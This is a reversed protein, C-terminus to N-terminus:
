KSVAVELLQHFSEEEKIGSVITDVVSQLEQRAQETTIKAERKKVRLLAFHTYNNDNDEIGAERVELGEYTSVCREPAIVGTGKEYVGESLRRAAESTGEPVEITFTGSRQLWPSVQDLAPEISAVRQIEGTEDQRVLLCMEIKMRIADLLEIEFSQVGEITPLILGGGVLDNCVAAFVMAGSDNVADAQEMASIPRGCFKLDIDRLDPRNNQLIHIAHDNFSGDGAQVFITRAKM